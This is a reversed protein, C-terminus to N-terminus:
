QVLEKIESNESLKSILLEKLHARLQGSSVGELISNAFGFVLLAQAVSQDVGRSTLYFLQESDLQGSGSGHSCKVDDAYIELQPMTDVEATKSLLLNSNNLRADTKQADQHVKIKGRFVGKAQNDLIGKYQEDSKCSAVKHETETYNDAQRNSDVLFLGNLSCSANEGQFEVRIDNRSLLAGFSFSRSSFQSSSKLFVHQVSFHFSRPDEDQIKVQEVSAGKELVTRTVINNLYGSAKEPAIYREIISAKTDEGFVMLNRTCNHVQVGQKDAIHIIQIPKTLQTGKRINLYVGDALFATNLSEFATVSEPFSLLSERALDPDNSIIEALNKLVIGKTELDGKAKYFRGNIFFLTAEADIESSIQNLKQDDWTGTLNRSIAYQQDTVPSLDTYKWDEARHEPFGTEAFQEMAKKRLQDIWPTKFGPLGPLGSLFEHQYYEIQNTKM